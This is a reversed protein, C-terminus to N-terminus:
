RFRMSFVPLGDYPYSNSHARYYYICSRAGDDYHTTTYYYPVNGYNYFCNCHGPYHPCTPQSAYYNPPCDCHWDYNVYGNPGNGQVEHIAVVKSTYASLQMTMAFCLLTLSVYLSHKLRAM